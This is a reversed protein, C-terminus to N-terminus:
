TREDTSGHSPPHDHKTESVIGSPFMILVIFLPVEWLMWDASLGLSGFWFFAFGLVLWFEGRLVTGITAEPWDAGAALPRWGIGWLIGVRLVVTAAYAAASVSLIQVASVDDGVVRRTLLGLLWTAALAGGQGVCRRWNFASAETKM